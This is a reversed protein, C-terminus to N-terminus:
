IPFSHVPTQIKTRGNLSKLEIIVLCQVITVGASKYFKETASMSGLYFCIFKSNYLYKLVSM